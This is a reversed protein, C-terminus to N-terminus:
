VNFIIKLNKFKFFGFKELFISRMKILFIAFRMCLGDREIDQEEPNAMEEPFYKQLRQVWAGVKQVVGDRNRFTLYFSM